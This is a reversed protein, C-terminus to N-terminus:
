QILSMGLVSMSDLQERSLCVPRDPDNLAQGSMVRNVESRAAALAEDSRFCVFDLAM